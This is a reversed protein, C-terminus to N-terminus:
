TAEVPAVLLRYQTPVKSMFAVVVLCAACCAAVLFFSGSIGLTFVQQRLRVVETARGVVNPGTSYPAFARGLGVVGLLPQTTLAPHAEPANVDPSTM